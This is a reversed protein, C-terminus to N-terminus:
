LFSHPLLFVTAKRNRQEVNTIYKWRKDFSWLNYHVWSYLRDFAVFMTFYAILTQFIPQNCLCNICKPLFQLVFTNTTLLLMLLHSFILELQARMRVAWIHANKNNHFKPIKIYMCQIVFFYIDNRSWAVVYTCLSQYM